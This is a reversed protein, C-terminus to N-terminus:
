EEKLQKISWKTAYYIYRIGFLFFMIIFILGSIDSNSISSHFFSAEIKEIVKIQSRYLELEKETFNKHLGNKDFGFEPFKSNVIRDNEYKGSNITAIYDLLSQKEFKSLIKHGKVYSDIEDASSSYNVLETLSKYPEFQLNKEIELEHKEIERLNINHLTDWLIFLLFFVITSGLTWLFERAIIKKTNKEM